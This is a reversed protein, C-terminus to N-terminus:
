LKNNQEDMGMAAFHEMLMRHIIICSFGIRKLNHPIDIVM